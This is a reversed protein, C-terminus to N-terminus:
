ATTVATNYSSQLIPQVLRFAGSFFYEFDVAQFKVTFFFWCEVNVGQFEGSSIWREFNVVAFWCECNVVRFIHYPWGDFVRKLESSNKFGDLWPLRWQSLRSHLVWINLPVTFCHPVDHAEGTHNWGYSFPYHFFHTLSCLANSSINSIQHHALFSRFM